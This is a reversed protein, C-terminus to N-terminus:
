AIRKALDTIKEWDQDAISHRIGIGQGINKSPDIPQLDFGTSTKSFTCKIGNYTCYDGDKIQDKTM